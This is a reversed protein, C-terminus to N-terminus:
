RSAVVLLLLGGVAGVLAVVVPITSATAPSTIRDLGIAVGATGAGVLVTASGHVLEARVTATERGLEAGLTVGFSGIDWVVFAAVVGALAVALSVGLTSAFAAVLFLGAGALGAGSAREDIVGVASSVFLALVVVLTLGSLLTVVMLGIAAEGYLDIAQTSLRRFEGLLQIPLRREIERIMAAIFAERYQLVAVVVLAGSVYPLTGVLAARGSGRYARKLGTVTTLVLGTAVIADVLLLRLAEARALGGLFTKLGAPLWGYPETAVTEVAIAAVVVTLALPAALRLARDFRSLKARTAAGIRDGLLESVPLALVTMRALYVVAVTLALLSALPVPATPAFVWTVIDTVIPGARSRAPGFRLVLAGVAATAVVVTSRVGAGVARALASHTLGDRVALTAGFVAITAGLVVFVSGIPLASRLQAVLAIGAGAIVALSVVPFVPGVFAVGIPELRDSALLGLVVALAVAGIVGYTARQGVGVTTVLGATAALTLSVVVATSLRTPQQRITDDVGSSATTRETAPKTNGVSDSAGGATDTDTATGSM